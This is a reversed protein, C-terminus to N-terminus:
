QRGISTRRDLFGRFAALAEPSRMRETFVAAEEEIRRCVADVDGRMLRRAAALAEPPKAALAEAARTVVVELDGSPVIGNVVGAQVMREAPFTTGLALMEFARAHGMRLPMLLSSAAEPVLGLALFPTSFSAQPSAYVLDCHLLLTTGIGVAVGDVGAILPKTLRPLLRVFALIDDALPVGTQAAALFAAIDNGATFVGPAGLLVHAAVHPAAEGDELAAALARYMPGDIANKKDPRALRILQVKGRRVLVVSESM